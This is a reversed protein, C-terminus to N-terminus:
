ARPMRRETVGHQAAILAAQTRDEVELKTIIASVHNRVTGNSLHLRKAIDTNSYGSAVLRLVDVERETLRLTIASAPQASRGTMHTVLKGAVAPDIFVKGEAAGRIAKLLDEPPTDKLLYGCAGARLADLIWQDDDYTTLVLVQTGTFRQRIQRTVEVGTMGPLKLDMLVLDPGAQEVLRLAEGGHEALGVVEIDPTLKLIMALGHRIIAQDDCILVRM